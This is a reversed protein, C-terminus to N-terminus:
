GALASDPAPLDAVLTWYVAFQQAIQRMRDFSVPKSIFSCAGTSYARLIDSEQKSTTLMVVPVNCLLPDARMETLVEFGNKKPMNIDLLVLGPRRASTFPAERRLFQLAQEGDEVAEIFNVLSCGSFAERLLLVDDESDDVILIEVPSIESNMYRESSDDLDIPESLQEVTPLFAVQSWYRAFWWLLQEQAEATEPRSVFSCAGRSYANLVDAEAANSTVVVVPISRINQDGKLESLIELDTSLDSGGQQCLDLLILSPSTAAEFPPQGRLCALAANGDPVVHAVSLLGTKEFGDLLWQAGSDDNAVLLIEIRQSDAM